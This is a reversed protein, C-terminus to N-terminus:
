QIDTSNDSISETNCDQRTTLSPPTNDIPIDPILVPPTGFKVECSFPTRNNVIACSGAHTATFVTEGSLTNSGVTVNVTPAYFGSYGSM